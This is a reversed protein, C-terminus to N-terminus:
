GLAALGEDIRRQTQARVTRRGAIAAAANLQDAAAAGDARVRLHDAYEVLLEVELLEMGKDRTHELAEAFADDAPGGGAAALLAGIEKAKYLLHPDNCAEAIRRGAALRQAAKSLDGLAVSLQAQTLVVPGHAQTCAYLEPNALVLEMLESARGLDAGADIDLNVRNIIAIVAPVRLRGDAGPQAAQDFLTAALEDAGARVHVRGPRSGAHQGVPSRPNAM